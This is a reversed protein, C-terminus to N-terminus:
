AAQKFIDKQIELYKSLEFLNNKPNNVKDDDHIQYNNASALDETYKLIYGVLKQLQKVNVLYVQNESEVNIKELEDSLSSITELTLTGRKAENMYRELAINFSDNATVQNETTLKRSKVIKRIGYGIGVGAIIVGGDILGTKGKNESALKVVKTVMSEKSSINNITTYNIAKNAQGEVPKSLDKLHEFIGGSKKYIVGGRRILEGSLLGLMAENSIEMAPVNITPMSFGGDIENINM